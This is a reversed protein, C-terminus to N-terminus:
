RSSFTWTGRALNRFTVYRGDNIAGPSASPSGGWVLRGNLTIRGGRAPVPVAVTGRADPAHVTMAFGGREQTWAVRLEGVPTVLSGEAHRVGGPHPEVRYGDVTSSAGLLYQTLAATPATAWGHALSTYSAPYGGNYYDAPNGDPHYGEWFTSRTGLPSSLMYGWERRILDLARRDDGATFRAMVEMGGPFPHIWSNWEPTLAGIRTWRTRLLRLVRDAQTRTQTMGFWVALSNGDQPYLAALQRTAGTPSDKYAGVADDWLLENAATKLADARQMCDASTTADHQMTALTACTTLARYMLANAELNIGGQDSRAWDLPGTVVFVGAPLTKAEAYRLGSLYQAWRSSLWSRDGSDVVYAATAILADLHYADAFVGPGTSPPGEYPFVGGPAQARYVADLSNRVSSMDHLSVADSPFAMVFDGAWIARDRKAGDTLLSGTGGLEADNAWGSTLPYRRPDDVGNSGVLMARGQDHAITGLELTYGGAYWIRNLLPDSSSFYSPWANPRALNPAATFLTSVGDLDTWGGTLPFVTLYRFAGRLQTQAATWTGHASVPATLYGDTGAPDNNSGNSADSNHGVFAASESFAVGVQQGADSADGFHLAVIGAVDRGFDLVLQASTGRLRTPQGTLVAAPRTVRATASHVSVPVVIRSSPAPSAALAAQEGTTVVEHLPETSTAAATGTLLAALSVGVAALRRPSPTRGAGVSRSSSGSRTM